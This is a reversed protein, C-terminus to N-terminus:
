PLKRGVEGTELLSRLWCDLILMENRFSLEAIIGIILMAAAATRFKREFFTADTYPEGGELKHECCGQSYRLCLSHQLSVGSSRSVSPELLM